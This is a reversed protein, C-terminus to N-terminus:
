ITIVKLLEAQNPEIKIVRADRVKVVRPLYGLFAIILEDDSNAIPLNFNGESNTVTQFDSGKLHIIAGYVGRENEDVVKGIKLSSLNSPNSMIEDKKYIIVSSYINAYNNKTHALLVNLIQAITKDKFKKNIITAKNELTDQYVFAYGSEKKLQCLASDLSQNKFQITIKSLPHNDKASITFSVFFYAILFFLIRNM